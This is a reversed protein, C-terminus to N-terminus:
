NRMGCCSIKPFSPSKWFRDKQLKSKSKCTIILALQNRMVTALHKPGKRVNKWSFFESGKKQYFKLFAFESSPGKGHYIPCAYADYPVPSRLGRTRTNTETKARLPARPQVASLTAPAAERM